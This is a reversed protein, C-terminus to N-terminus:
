SNSPLALPREPNYTIRRYVADAPFGPPIVRNFPCLFAQSRAPGCINGPLSAVVPAMGSIGPILWLSTFNDLGPGPPRSDKGICPACTVSWDSERPTAPLMMGIRRRPSSLPQPWFSPAQCPRELSRLFADGLRTRTPKSRGAFLRPAISIGSLRRSSSGMPREAVSDCCDNTFHRSADAGTAVQRLIWCHWLEHTAAPPCMNASPKEPRCPAPPRWRATDEPKKPKRYM